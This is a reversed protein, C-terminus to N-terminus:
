AARCRTQPASQPTGVPNRDPQMRKGGRQGASVSVTERCATSVYGKPLALDNVLIGAGLPWHEILIQARGGPTEDAGDLLSWRGANEM